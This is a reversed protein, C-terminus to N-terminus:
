AAVAQPRMTIWVLASWVALTAWCLLGVHAVEVIVVTSLAVVPYVALIIRAVRTVQRDPSSDAVALAALVTMPLLALLHYHFESLPAILLIWLLFASVVLLDRHPNVRRAAIVMAGAMMLGAGAAIERARWGGTLRWVVAALTQSRPKHPSLLQGDVKSQMRAEDHDVSPKAVVTVWERWYALNRQWGYVAAPLLLGGVLLAAVTALVCRWRGKWVFYALLAVPFAKLLVAGALAVASSLDRGQRFWFLAAMLLWLTLITAQGLAAAQVAWLVVTLFPLVYLWFLHRNVLGSERAMAVCMWLASWMLWVSLAYWIAMSMAVNVVAFPAMFIAFVPPYVYLWGRPNQAEYIDSGALVAAGATRYVLFDSRREASFAARYVAVGGVIVVLAVALVLVIRKATSDFIACRRAVSNRLNDM